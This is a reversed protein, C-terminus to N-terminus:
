GDGLEKDIAAIRDEIDEATVMEFGPKGNRVYKLQAKGGLLRGLKIGRLTETELLEMDEDDLPYYERVREACERARQEDTKAPKSPCDHGNFEPEPMRRQCNYCKTYSAETNM